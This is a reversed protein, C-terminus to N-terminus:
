YQQATYVVNSNFNTANKYAAAAQAEYINRQKNSYIARYFFYIMLVIAIIAIIINLILMLLACNTNIGINEDGSGSSGNSSTTGNAYVICNTISVGAIFTAALGLLRNPTKNDTKYQSDPLTYGPTVTTVTTM